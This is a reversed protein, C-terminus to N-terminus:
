KYFRAVDRWGIDTRYHLGNNEVQIMSIAKYANKRAELINKGEGVIHLIRGGSTIFKKQDKKIGAGFLLVGKQKKLSEIGFVQKGKINSYDEPYGRCCGSISVRIKKDFSIKLKNLKQKKVSNMITMYDTKISPLIVQAEPDGWRANFEVIGVGNKTIMGGLYLIGTYPRKESQMGKMFPKLIKNEIDKIQKQNLVAASAVCGMGGTNLGKDANFVTKHDQAIKTIVYNKGDCIAFLSFEEGTMCEEILFTKGANGFDKMSEIAAIAEKKNETKIAGKGAALGSAKIYLTQEPLSNIYKIADKQNKFTKFKPIPLNYKQMFDRAWEKSWEIEASDKTPGFVSFGEKQLRDVYGAALQDDAAVDIHNIKEKKYFKIIDEINSVNITPIISIKKNNIETLGNGPIVFVKSVQKSKAYIDALAHERGGSGIIAIKM